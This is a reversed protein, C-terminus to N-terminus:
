AAIARRRENHMKVRIGYRPAMSKQPVPELTQGPIYTAKWREALVGMVLLDQLVAFEKGACARPGASFPFYSFEPRGGRAEPTWRQPDFREPNPFFRPDLHMVRQSALVISRAPVAYGNFSYDERLFRTIIWVSPYLRRVEEFVMAAYPLKAADEFAPVGGGLVRDLESHLEAEVGPNGSLLYWAWPMTTATVEHMSFMASMAVSVAQEAGMYQVLMALLSGSSKGSSAERDALKQVFAQIYDRAEKSEPKTQVDVPPLFGALTAEIPNFGHGIDMTVIANMLESGQDEASAKFLVESVVELTIRGIERYIDVEFPGESAFRAQWRRDARQAAATMVPVYSPIVDHKLLPVFGGIQNLYAQEVEPDKRKGFVGPSKVFLDAVYDPANLFYLDQSGFPLRVIDGYERALKTVFTIPDNRLGYATSEFTAGPPSPVIQTPM